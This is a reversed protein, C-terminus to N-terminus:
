CKLALWRGSLLYFTTLFRNKRSEFLDTCRSDCFPVLFVGFSQPTLSIKAQKQLFYCCCELFNMIFVLVQFVLFLLGGPQKTQLLFLWFRCVSQANKVIFILFLLFPFEFLPARFTSHFSTLNFHIFTGWITTGVATQFWFIWFLVRYLFSRSVM